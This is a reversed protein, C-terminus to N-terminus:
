HGDHTGELTRADLPHLRTDIGTRTALSAHDAADGCSEPGTASLLIYRSPASILAVCAAGV